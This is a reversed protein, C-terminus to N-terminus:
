HPAHTSDFHGAHDANACASEELQLTTHTIAFRQELLETITDLVIQHNNNEALVVHATLSIKGSSLAWIHLDHIAAVGESKSIAQEIADIDVGNPIGELLINLSEKLLVWTRPLVWIGIAAAVVADIWVWGTFRIIIAAAIVGLSSIMDSWVELYAGKVNLSHEHKGKLLQLSAFNVGLGIIAVILMGIPRLPPPELLRRYAEYLIYAAVFILVTANFAAALIEFRYYGFTRKRDAPRRAIRIAALAIALGVADTLMHAADSLLALSHLLLGGAIEVILYSLTLSLAFWLTRENAQSAGHDHDHSM